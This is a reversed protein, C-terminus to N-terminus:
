RPDHNISLINYQSRLPISETSNRPFSLYVSFKMHMPLVSLVSISGYSFAFTQSVTDDDLTFLSKSRGLWYYPPYTYRISVAYVVLTDLAFLCGFSRRGCCVIHPWWKSVSLFLLSASQRPPGALSGWKLGHLSKLFYDM